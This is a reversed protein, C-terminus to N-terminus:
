SSLLEDVAAAATELRHKREGKVEVHPARLERVRAVYQEHMWARAEERRLGLPDLRFPTAPDCLVYLDYRRTLPRLERVPAGLYLEAFVATTFVDTDCFLVRSAFDALFDELWNQVQAIHVFEDATWPRNPDGRARHHYVAGYEPVWLTGYRKALARALTTKGTSEAGLICVRKAAGATM